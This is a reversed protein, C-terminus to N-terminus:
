EVTQVERIGNQILNRLYALITPDSLPLGALAEKIPRDDFYFEAQGGYVFIWNIDPHAVLLSLFTDSLDGLPMRDIHNLQFAVRILTGQGVQSIITLDGNCLEAASKLLPIGLGVKRTTRSTVFPDIVQEVMEPAMGKGDDQVSIVLQDAPYDELVRIEINKAEASVSNEAIDLIHLALERM